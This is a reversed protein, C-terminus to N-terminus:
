MLRKGTDLEIKIFENDDQKELYIYVDEVDDFSLGLQGMEKCLRLVGKSAVDLQTDLYNKNFTVSNKM